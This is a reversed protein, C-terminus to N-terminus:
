LVFLKIFWWRFELSELGLEVYLKMQSAGKIAGAINFLRLKKVYVKITQDYLINGYDLHPAKCIIQINHSSFAM